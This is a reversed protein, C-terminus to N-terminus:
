VHQTNATSTATSASSQLLYQPNVSTTTPQIYVAAGIGPEPGKKNALVSGDTCIFNRWDHKLPPAPASTCMTHTAHQLARTAAGCPAHTQHVLAIVNQSRSKRRHDHPRKLFKKSIHLSPQLDTRIPTTAPTPPRAWWAVHPQYIAAHATAGPKKSPITAATPATAYPCTDTTSKKELTGADHIEQIATPTQVTLFGYRYQLTLKRLRSKITTSTMFTHGYRHDSQDHMTQWSQFYVPTTNSSGLIHTELVMHKLSEALNAVLTYVWSPVDQRQRPEPQKRSSANGPNSQEAVGQAHTELPNPAIRMKETYPWSVGQHNNSPRDYLEPEVEPGLTEVAGKAAAVAITDAYEHGM